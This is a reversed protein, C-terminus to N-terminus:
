RKYNITIRFDEVSIYDCIDLYFYKKSTAQSSM